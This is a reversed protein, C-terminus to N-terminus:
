PRYHGVKDGDVLAALAVEKGIGRAAGTVFWVKCM